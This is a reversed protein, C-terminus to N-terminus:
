QDTAFLDLQQNYVPSKVGFAGLITHFINNQGYEGLSKVSPSSLKKEKLFSDSEWIIFPVRKQEDPAISYPTGHLYLGYEGLSEGHDSMYIMTSPINSFQKLVNIVNSLFHDTYVITNDYANMLEEQTCEKIAVTKCAPQFREFQPPYKASYTPGHSGATHLVIFIKNKKSALIREPLGALLVSDFHCEEGQCQPELNSEREYSEVQLAPEGWNKSRWIVDAGIRQLYNPLPEYDDSIKGEFSLMSHVSATTYTASSFSNPLTLVNLKKLEPNTEKDYGYLSFNKARASEGIVLVVIMKSDNAFTANPLLIQQKSHEMKQLTYRISNISYAWPLCLGGLTKSYKDGWPWTSSNLYMIFIGGILIILTSKLIHVRKSKEIKIHSIIWAPIIGGVILYLFLKPDYYSLAEASDTSFVNGMMTRDLIVHYSILFYLAISNGVMMVITFIRLVSLSIFALLYMLVTTIVFLCILVACFTFIGNWSSITLHDLTFSFLPYHYMLINFLTIWVIYKTVSIPKTFVNRVSALM